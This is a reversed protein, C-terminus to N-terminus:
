LYVPDSDRESKRFIKKLIGTGLNCEFYRVYNIGANYNPPFFSVFFFLFYKRTTKSKGLGGTKERDTENGKFANM